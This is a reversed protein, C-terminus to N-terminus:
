RTETRLNVEGYLGELRVREGNISLAKFRRAKMVTEVFELVVRRDNNSEVATILEIDTARGRENIAYSYEFLGNVPGNYDQFARKNVKIPQCYLAQCIRIENENLGGVFQCNGDACRLCNGAYKNRSEDLRNRLVPNVEVPPCQNITVAGPQASVTFSVLWVAVALSLQWQKM